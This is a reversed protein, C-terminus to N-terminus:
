WREIGIAQVADVLRRALGRPVLERGRKSAPESGRPAHKIGGGPPALEDVRDVRVLSPNDVADLVVLGNAVVVDPDHDSVGAEDFQRLRLEVADEDRVQEFAERRLVVHDM